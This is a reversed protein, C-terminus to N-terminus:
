WKDALYSDGGNLGTKVVTNLPHHRIIMFRIAVDDIVIRQAFYRRHDEIIAINEDIGGHDAGIEIIQMIAM